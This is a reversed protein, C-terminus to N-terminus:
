GRDAQRRPFTKVYRLRAQQREYGAATWFAQAPEEDAVVILHFRRAGKARLRREGEDVLQGAIGQRRVAPLVALRYMTGRWGDWAAIVTGILTGDDDTALLLSEPDAGLLTAVGDADDTASPEVTAASWLALVAPIDETTAARITIM